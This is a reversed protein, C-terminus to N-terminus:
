VAMKGKQIETEQPITKIGATQVTDQVETWLEEPVRDSFYIIAHLVM